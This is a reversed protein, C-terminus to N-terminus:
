QPIELDKEVEEQKHLELVLKANKVKEADKEAKKLYYKKATEKMTSWEQLARRYYNELEKLTEKERLLELTPPKKNRQILSVLYKEKAEEFDKDSLVGEEHFGKGLAYLGAYSRGLRYKIQLQALALVYLPPMYLLLGHGKGKM